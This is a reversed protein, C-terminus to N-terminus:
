SSYAEMINLLGLYEKFELKKKANSIKKNHTYRYKIVLRKQIELKWIKVLCEVKIHCDKTYYKSSNVHKIM